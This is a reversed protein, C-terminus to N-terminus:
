IRAWGLGERVPRWAERGTSDCSANTIMRGSAVLGRCGERETITDEEPRDWVLVLAIRSRPLTHTLTPTPEATRDADWVRDLHGADSATAAGRRWQGGYNCVSRDPAAAGRRWPGYGVPAPARWPSTSVWGRQQGARSGVSSGIRRRELGRYLFRTRGEVQRGEEDIQRHLDVDSYGARADASRM